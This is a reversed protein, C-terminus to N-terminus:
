QATAKPVEPLPPHIPWPQEGNGMMVIIYRGTFLYLGPQPDKVPRANPGTMQVKTVQWAGTLSTSKQQAPAMGSTLLLACLFGPTTRMIIPVIANTKTM